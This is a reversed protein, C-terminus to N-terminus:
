RSLPVDRELFAGKEWWFLKAATPVGQDVAVVLYSVGPWLPEGDPAAMQRDEQSFYAGVDCHSHFVCAIQERRADAEESIRLHEKPDFLYATRSTRPFREPDVAHYRDYANQMPHIRFGTPGRLILGCGESPYAAVVATLVASLDDPLEPADM